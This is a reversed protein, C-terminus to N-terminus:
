RGGKRIILFSGDTLQEIEWLNEEAQQQLECEEGTCEMIVKKIFDTGAIGMLKAKLQKKVPKVKFTGNGRDIVKFGARALKATNLVSGKSLGCENSNCNSTNDLFDLDVDNTLFEM